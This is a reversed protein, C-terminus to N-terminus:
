LNDGYTFFSSSSYLSLSSARAVVLALGSSLSIKGLVLLDILVVHLTIPFVFKLTLM